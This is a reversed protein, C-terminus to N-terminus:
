VWGPLAKTRGIPKLLEGLGPTRLSGARIEPCCRPQETWAFLEVLLRVHGRGDRSGNLSEWHRPHSPKRLLIRETAHWGRAGVGLDDWDDEALDRGVSAM